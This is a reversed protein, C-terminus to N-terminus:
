KGKVTFVLDAIWADTRMVLPKIAKKCIICTDTIDDGYDTLYHIKNDEQVTAKCKYIQGCKPCKTLYRNECM